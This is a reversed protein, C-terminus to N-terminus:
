SPPKQAGALTITTSLERTTSAGKLNARLRARISLAKGDGDLQRVDVHGRYPDADIGCKFSQGKRLPVDDPCDVSRVDVKESLEAGGLLSTPPASSLATTVAKKLSSEVKMTDLTREASPKADSASSGDDGGCASVAVTAATLGVVALRRMQAGPIRPTRM